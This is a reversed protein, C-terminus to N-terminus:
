SSQDRRLLCGGAHLAPPPVPCRRSAAAERRAIAKAERLSQAREDILAHEM